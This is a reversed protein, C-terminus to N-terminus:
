HDLHMMHTFVSTELQELIQDYDTPTEPLPEALLVEMKKRSAMTTVPKDKLKGLHNVVMDIVQYGLRKMEEKSLELKASPDNEFSPEEANFGTHKLSSATLLMTAEIEDLDEVISLAQLAHKSPMM